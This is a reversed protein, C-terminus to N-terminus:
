LDKMERELESLLDDDTMAEIQEAIEHVDTEMAIACEPERELDGGLDLIEQLQQTLLNISPYNWFTAVSVQIGLLKQLKNRFQITMLSDLGMSAFPMDRDIKDTTTKLINVLIKVLATKIAEDVEEALVLRKLQSVFGSEQITREQDILKSLTLDITYSPNNETWKQVDLDIVNVDNLQHKLCYELAEIYTKVTINAIGERALRNGRNDESAALGVESVPGWNICTVPLKQQQRVKSLADLFANAAVYNAQGMSGLTSAVSSFLVFYELDDQETETHLYRAGNVKPAVPKRFTHQDMKLISTDALTGAAHFVGKLPPLTARVESLMAHVEQKVSVDTQMVRINHGRANWQDIIQQKDKDPASRGTLVVNKAGQGLMWEAMAFGLGGLGGTILYTANEDFLRFAAVAELDPSELDFVIKGIHRGSAMFNFGDMVESAQYVKTPIPQYNAAEFHSMMAKMTSNVLDPREILMKHLDFFTYSISEKFIDMKLNSKEYVDKKGIELFRGFGRLLKMSQYMAEGTLSNLVLDIGEGKTYEIVEDAFDLSHSDMVYPVGLSRLLQRKEVTGATAYIEAGVKQAIEIAALGVGGAASHILIREGKQLRGYEILCAYATGFAVGISAAETFALGDPINIAQLAKCITYKGLCDHEPSLGLVRDGVQLSEVKGGVRTVIGSFEIGLCLFGNEMGPYIGLASMVNMFNLGTAKVEVEIEDEEPEERDVEMVKINDLLGPEDTVFRWAEYNNVRDPTSSIEIASESESYDLVNLRPVYLQEDRIAVEKEPYDNELLAVLQNVDTQPELSLDIRRVDLETHEHFVVRAMGHLAASHLNMDQDTNAQIAGSSIVTLQPHKTPRSQNLAQILYILGLCQVESDEWCILQEAAPQLYIVQTPFYEEETLASILRGFHEPQQRDLEFVLDNEQGYRKFHDGQNVISFTHDAISLQAQIELWLKNDNTFVLYKEQDTVAQKTLSGSEWDVKYFLEQVEQQVSDELKRFTFGKLDALVEGKNNCVSFDRTFSKAQSQEEINEINVWIPGDFSIDENLQYSQIASPVYADTIKGPLASMCVQFCIQFCADLLAPHFHYAGQTLNLTELPKVKGLSKNELTWIADVGQFKEGYRIGAGSLIDYHRKTDLVPIVNRVEAGPDEKPVATILQQHLRITGECYLEWRDTGPLETSFLQFSVTNKREEHLMLQVHRSSSALSLPRNFIIERLEPKFDPFSVSVAAFVLELYGSAPFIVTQNVQHDNLFPLADLNLQGEWIVQSPDSANRIERTLFPHIQKGSFSQQEEDNNIWFSQKQWPYPPLNHFPFRAGGYFQEWDIKVGNEFLVRLNTTMEASEDVNRRLSHVAFSMPKKCHEINQDLLQVLIPHPSVEVFLYDDQELLSQIAQNLLVPKRLNDAWYKADFENGRLLENVVTSYIPVEGKTPNVASLQDLLDEKLQDMQPSHSAYDVKILRNFVQREELQDLLQEIVQADGSLVTSKPGNCAGIAVKEEYGAILSTAEEFTLETLAMAGSGSVTRALQSRKCIVMAADDLSLAGAVHAAAVEGMSHGLVVDPVVGKEEWLAALAVEIAFLTPQIIDVEEFRSNSEDKKLEELLSWNTYQAFAQDCAEIKSRFVVETELLSQGMGVWQSGQGPFVFAIKKVSSVVKTPEDFTLSSELQEILEAKNRGTVAFRNPLQSKHVAAAACINKWADGSSENLLDLYRQKLQKTSDPGATSIPLIFHDNIIEISTTAQDPAEGIVIHVNTGSLGFGSVGAYRKSESRAWEQTDTLVSLPAKEWDFATTPNDLHLNAPIKGNQLSLIVKIIGAMGAASECHGINSKVSGLYLKKEREREKIAAAIGKLEVPDGVATGTGHAEIYDVDNPGIGAMKWAQQIAKTQSSARPVTYGKSAGDNNIGSGSIVGLVKDKDHLADELPKLLIMGAGESRVFGNASDDFAKCRGDPSLASLGCFAVHYRPSLILNVGGAFAMKSEGSWISQCALHVATLSSSCATDVTLSPGSLDYAYSIRGSATSMQTGMVSYANISLPNSSRIDNEVYDVITLGTFVGATSGKIKEISMGANEITEYSLELLLRVQPDLSESELPSIQFFGNDFQDVDKLFGGQNTYIKGKVNQDPDYFQNIDWRDAPIDDIADKKDILLDWFSAPDNAEGPFRCSMGIIAIEKTGGTYM